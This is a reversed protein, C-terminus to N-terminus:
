VLIFYFAATRFSLLHSGPEQPLSTRRPIRRENRCNLMFHKLFFCCCCRLPESSSGVALTILSIFGSQQLSFYLPRIGDLVVLPIDALDLRPFPCSAREKQSTLWLMLCLRLAWACLLPGNGRETRPCLWSCLFIPIAPCCAHWMYSWNSDRHIGLDGKRAAPRHFVVNKQIADKIYFFTM